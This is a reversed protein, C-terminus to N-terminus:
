GTTRGQQQKWSLMVGAAVGRQQQQQQEQQQMQQQLLHATQLISPATM